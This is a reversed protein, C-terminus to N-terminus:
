EATRDGERGLAYPGDSLLGRGRELRALYEQELIEAEVDLLLALGLLFVARAEARVGGLNGGEAGGEAFEAIDVDVVGEAGGVTCM